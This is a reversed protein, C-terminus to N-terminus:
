ESILFTVDTPMGPKLKGQGDMVALEVAYVTKQREEKTQVNRPTYEAEDAIRIVEAEFRQDPFSDVQLQAHDGLSIQGYRDEPIYVTVRLDELQGITMTTLGPQIVEGPEINRTLVVGSIPSSVKSKELNLLILNLSAQAQNLSKEAGEIGSKAQDVRAQAQDRGAKAQSVAAAAIQVEWADEDTYFSELYDQALEFRERAVSLRARGELIDKAEPESLLQQYEEQAAELEVEAADYINQRYEEIEERGEFGVERDLLSEAIFFAAQAEALRKESAAIENHDVEELLDQYDEQETQYSKRAEELEDEAAAMREPKHFYWRPLDFATPSSLDWDTVRDSAAALRAKQLVREYELRASQFAAEAAELGAEAVALSAKSASLQSRASELQAEAQKRQAQIMETNIEFLLDGEEIEDGERVHIISIRGSIESAISVEVAEIVGSAQISSDDGPTLGLDLTECGSLLMAILAIGLFYTLNMKNKM